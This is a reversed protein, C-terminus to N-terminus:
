HPKEPKRPLGEILHDMGLWLAWSHHYFALPFTVGVVFLIALTIRDGFQTLALLGFYVILILLETGVVNAMIAGVFFGEERKFVAGCASCRHKLNFPREVISARGCVPCQLKLCRWLTLLITHPDRKM